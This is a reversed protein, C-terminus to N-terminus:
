RKKGKKRRRNREVFQCVDHSWRIKAQPTCQIEFPMSSSLAYINDIDDVIGPSTPDAVVFNYGDLHGYLEQVQDWVSQTVLVTQDTM